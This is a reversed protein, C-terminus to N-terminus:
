NIPILLKQGIYIESSSLNNIRQINYVIEKISKNKFYENEKIQEKAISWMSDGNSIYIVKYQTEQHSFVSKSLIILSLLIILLIIISRIFKKFNIIKIRM